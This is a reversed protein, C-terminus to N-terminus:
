FDFTFVAFGLEDEVNLYSYLKGERFFKFGMYDGPFVEEHLQNLDEDFFTVVEKYVASDGIKRDLEQSFRWFKKNFDDYYFRGFSVQGDSKALVAEVDDPTNVEFSVTEPIKKSDETLNSHFVKHSISDTELDM